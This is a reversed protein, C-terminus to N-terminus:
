ETRTVRIQLVSGTLGDDVSVVGPHLTVVGTPDDRTPSFGTGGGAPGPVTAATETNAETGADYANTTIETEEGVSLGAISTSALGTFADNTNTLMSVLTVLLGSRDRGRVSFDVAASGGPAIGTGITKVAIVNPDTSAAQVLAATNGGEALRELETSAADGVNFVVYGAHHVVIVVPSLPQGNTLNTLEVHYSLTAGSSGGSGGGGCSALLTGLLLMSLVRGSNTFRNM